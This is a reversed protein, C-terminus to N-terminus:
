ANSGPCASATDSPSCDMVLPSVGKIDGLLEASWRAVALLLPAPPIAVRSVACSGPARSAATCRAASDPARDRSAPGRDGSRQTDDGVAPSPIPNPAPLDRSPRRRTPSVHDSSISSPTCRFKTTLGSPGCSTRIRNLLRLNVLPCASSHYAALRPRSAARYECANITSEPHPHHPTIHTNNKHYIRIILINKIHCDIMGLSLPCLHQLWFSYTYCSSSLNSQKNIVNQLHAGWLVHLSTSCAGTMAYNNGMDGVILLCGGVFKALRAPKISSSCRRCALYQAADPQAYTSSLWVDGYVRRQHMEYSHACWNRPCQM